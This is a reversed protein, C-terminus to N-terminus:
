MLLTALVKNGCMCVWSIATKKWCRKEKRKERGLGKECYM